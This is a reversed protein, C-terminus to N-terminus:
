INIIIQLNVQFHRVAIFTAVIMISIIVLIIFMLRLRSATKDKLDDNAILIYDNNNM